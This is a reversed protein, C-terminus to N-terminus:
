TRTKSGNIILGRDEECVQVIVYYPEEPVDRGCRSGILKLSKVGSIRIVREMAEFIVDQIHDPWDKLEGELYGTVDARLEFVRLGKVRVKFEAEHIELDSGDKGTAM